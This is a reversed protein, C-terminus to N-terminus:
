KSPNKWVLQIRGTKGLVVLSAIFCILYTGIHVSICDKALENNHINRTILEVPLIFVMGMVGVGVGVKALELLTRPQKAKSQIFYNFKNIFILYMPSITSSVTLSGIFTLIIESSIKM